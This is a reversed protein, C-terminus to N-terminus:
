PAEQPIIISLPGREVSVEALEAAFENSVGRGAGTALDEGDLNWRLGATRVGEATGHTAVLSVTAGPSGVLTAHDHVPVLRTSGLWASIGLPAYRPAGLVLAGALLHDLRGGTGAVVVTDDVGLALLHDLALELDTADKDVPHRQVTAGDREADGLLGHDVSDLDGVVLDVRELWGRERLELALHLGSDVAVVLPALQALSRGVALPLDQPAPGGVVVAAGRGPESSTAAPAGRRRAGSQDSRSVGPDPSSSM